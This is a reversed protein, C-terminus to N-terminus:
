IRPIILMQANDLTKKECQNEQELMCLRSNHSKAIDWLSEGASAFYLTMAFSDRKIPKDELVDLSKVAVVSEKNEATIELKIECRLDVTNDDSLRYSITAVRPAVGSVSSYQSLSMPIHEYDISREVFVPYGEENLALICIGVKGKIKIGDESQSIDATISDSYINLLKSLKGDAIAVSAKEMHPETTVVGDGSFRITELEPKSEYEVSYADVVIEEDNVVKGEETICLKVDLIVSPKESLMDNKLRIDYSLVDCSVNNVTTEDIGDCDIIQNFPLLYDLKATEGTEVSTLYLIRLNIEGTIMLKGKVAKSETINASVASQLISEIVPKDAVSIEECVNFQEQCYSRLDACRFSQKNTEYSEDPMFLKTESIACVKAYLSFAGHMVLRRPSLARCNIYEPKTKTIIVPNDPTEKVSFTQSFNVTQECCRITKKEAEVYLVNVVCVGDIQLQGGSLSKNQIKPVLTCKLIKEIDPCYDPLTLDVDTLQEAVTDLIVVPSHFVRDAKIFEM